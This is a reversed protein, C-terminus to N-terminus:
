DDVVVAARPNERLNRLRLLDRAAGRKPKEDAVFYLAATTSRTASRSSTRRATPAPPPSIVSATRRLFAGRRPRGARWLADRPGRVRGPGRRGARRLAGRLPALLPVGAPPGRRRRARPRRGPARDPSLAQQGPRPRRRPVAVRLLLRRRGRALRVIRAANSPSFLTDVVYAIKQGPTVILLEDRLAGIPRRDGPASRSRRSRPRRRRAGREQAVNLWPGPRLGAAALADPRVNLHTRETVAYGLVSSRTTSCAGGRRHARLGPLVRRLVARTGLPERAFRNRAAFRWRHMEAADIEISTSRSPTSTPSTGPTAPSSARRRLRRHRRPGFLRLTGERALFLRLLQDFGMFHDMHAHSVFVAEIPLLVAGPTRDIRGLDVLLARGQWRLSVLLAPDGTQGNLLRPRLSSKTVSPM